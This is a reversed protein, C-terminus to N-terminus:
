HRDHERDHDHDRDIRVHDRDPYYGDRWYHGDYYPRNNHYYPYDYYGRNYGVDAEAYTHHCGTLGAMAVLPLALVLTKMWSM